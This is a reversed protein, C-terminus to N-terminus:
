RGLLGELVKYHNQGGVGTVGPLAKIEGGAM